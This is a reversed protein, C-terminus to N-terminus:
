GCPRSSEPLCDLGKAAQLSLASNAVPRPHRWLGEQIGELLTAGALPSAQSSGGPTAENLLAGFLSSGSPRGRSLPAPAAGRCRPNRPVLSGSRRSFAALRAPCPRHAFGPRRLGQRRLSGERRHLRPDTHSVIDTSVRPSPSKPPKGRKEKCNIFITCGYTIYKLIVSFYVSPFLSKFSHRDVNRM